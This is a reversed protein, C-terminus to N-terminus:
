PEEEPIGGPVRKKKKAYTTDEKYYANNARQVTM